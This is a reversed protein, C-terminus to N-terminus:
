REFVGEMNFSLSESRTYNNLIMQYTDRASMRMFLPINTSEDQDLSWFFPLRESAHYRWFSKFTDQVFSLSPAMFTPSSTITRNLITSGLLHAYKSELTETQVKLNYPSFPAKPKTPFEMYQGLYAVALFPTYGTYPVIKIRWYQALIPSFTKINTGETPRFSAVAVNVDASFNDSSYELSIQATQSLTISPLDFNHGTFAFMSINNSSSFDFTIYKTGSSSASKWFTYTRWDKINNVNYESSSDTDTAVAAATLGSTNLWNQWGIIPLAM